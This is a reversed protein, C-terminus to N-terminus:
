EPYRMEVRATGLSKAGKLATVSWEYTHPTGPPCPSKYKFTGAPIVGDGSVKLKAGGHNYGPADKDKLKIAIRNTGTPLGSVQMEPNGVVNPRGTYCYPIDGWGAIKLSFEALAPQVSLVLALTALPTKM